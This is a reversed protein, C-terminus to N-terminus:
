DDWEGFNPINVTDDDFIGKEAQTHCANCNSLSSVDKNGKVMEETLEHHKRKIYKVETIRLPAEGESISRTIKRARKYYSKEASNAYVYKQLSALDAEDLEANEGFHDELAKADLLKEWSQIPLLGPPYAYHCAGCEEAYLENNVAKVEKTRSISMVWKGFSEEESASVSTVVSASVLVSILILQRKM